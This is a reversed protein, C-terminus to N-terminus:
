CGALIIKLIRAIRIQYTHMAKVKQYGNDAIERRLDDQTLYYAVKEHCEDITEYCDLDKGIEFYEPIEGQYDTLLFGGCGLIDFIRQSLGTQISCMTINLNIKSQQFVFPMETHTSVGDHCHIHPLSSASSRTFLHVDFKESLSKLLSIRDRSSLEMGLYYNAAVFADTDTFADPLTYFGSDAKKFAHIMQPTLAEEIQYLGSLPTRAVLMQECLVREQPSLTLYPYSSKENYLSGVFSVDYAPVTAVAKTDATHLIGDWRAVNAALPLYFICNPNEDHYQTYQHYDFLFIRNCQNRISASYLELVPCDVSLCVYTVHLRECVESIYPFFNISFVFLPTHALIKEAILQVRLSPEISKQRIETDEEIIKLGFSSFADMIDPECINGYRHFIINM